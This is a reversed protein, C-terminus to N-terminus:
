LESKLQEVLRTWIKELLIFRNNRTRQAHDRFEKDGLYEELPCADYMGHGAAIANSENAIFFEKINPRCGDWYRAFPTGNVVIVSRGTGPGIDDLYILVSNGGIAFRYLTPKRIELEINLSSMKGEKRRM